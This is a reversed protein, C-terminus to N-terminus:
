REMEAGRDPASKKHERSVPQNRLQEVVSKKKEDNERRSAEALELLSIPQGNKAQQELEAVTPNKGNDIIGDIMDYDDEMSMEASKLYNEPELFAPIEQFGFSDVYHCSVVGNQKLAVIDSVSLSPRHYDAPHDNNFRDWLIALKEETNGTNTLPATYALDYNGHDVSIGKSELWSLPEFRIDRLKDGSKVQYIAFADQSTKLFAAERQEQHKMRDEIASSFEWSEEWEERSVAFLGRHAQIEDPDFAMSAGGDGTMYVTLDQEFLELARDKSLPLLDGYLYGCAELDAVTLDSDPMPYEDLALEPTDPLMDAAKPQDPATQVEPEIQEHDSLNNERIYDQVDQERVAAIDRLIDLPVKKSAAPTLHELALAQEYATPISSVGEDAFGSATEQLSAKDYLTYGYGDENEKLYLYAANDLLYVAETERPPYIKEIEDLRRLLEGPSTADEIKAANLIAARTDKGYGSKLDEVTAPVEEEISNLPFPPEMVSATYQYVDGAFQELVPDYEKLVERFNQDIDSILGSATKNITELSARLEPLEKDRSWSAIYGFSNEGTQIGYYQCVAYSVSEAEVEETHRDKPKPPEATEDSKAAALRAQEYNHLTAHTIEHVAASVAQVESMGTRIAIRQDKESFYGDANPEMAEFALPVPSSRRLAEIFFGFQKVNGTLDNALTPLPKGETQSVDFVAVVKYMPIKIEKEEMIINGDADLMPVKTDPDLKEEEIRKKFPTPAIIKIGKEGRMVNRSFQDRWKNFGAVLTADPKQMYILMTNNVSYRHFRSMTRLYQAYRDSQFLDKIGQEISDTIEKLREKNKEAM